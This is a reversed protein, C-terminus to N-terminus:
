ATSKKLCNDTKGTVLLTKESLIFFVQLDPMRGEKKESEDGLIKSTLGLPCVNLICASRPQPLPTHRFLVYLPASTKSVIMNTDFDFVKYDPLGIFVVKTQFAMM